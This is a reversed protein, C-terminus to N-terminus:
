SYKGADRILSSHSERLSASLEEQELHFTAIAEWIVTM